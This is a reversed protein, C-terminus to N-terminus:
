QADNHEQIHQDFLKSFPMQNAEKLQQHYKQRLRSFMDVAEQSVKQPSKRSEEPINPATDVVKKSPSTTELYHNSQSDYIYIEDLNFPDFRVDVVTGHPAQQVPYQNGYLKIKGFKSVTRSQKWLFMRNFSELDSIRQHEQPLGALFREDPPEGTSSHIRKNYV